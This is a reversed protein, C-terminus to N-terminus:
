FDPTIQFRYGSPPTGTTASVPTTARRSAVIRQTRDVNAPGDPGPIIGTVAARITVLEGDISEPVLVLRLKEANAEAGLQFEYAVSEGVFTHLENTQLVESHDGAVGEVAVLFRVPDGPPPIPGAVARGVREGQLTLVLRRAGDGFVEFLGSGGDQFHLARTARLPAQGATTVASTCSLAIEGDSAGGPALAVTLRVDLARGPSGWPVHLDIVEPRRPGVEADKKVGTAEAPGDGVAIAEVHLLVHSEVTVPQLARPGPVTAGAIALLLAAIAIRLPSM